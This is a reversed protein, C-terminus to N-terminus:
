RGTRTIAADIEAGSGVIAPKGFDALLAPPPSVILEPHAICYSPYPGASSWILFSRTQRLIEFMANWFQPVAEFSPPRNVAICDVLVDIAIDCPNGDPDLLMWESYDMMEVIGDFAREAIARDLAVDDDATKLFIDFSM